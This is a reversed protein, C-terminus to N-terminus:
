PKEPAVSGSYVRDMRVGYEQMNDDWPIGLRQVQRRLRESPKLEAYNTGLDFLGVDPEGVTLSIARGEAQLRSSGDSEKSYSRYGLKECGLSPDRFDTNEYHAMPPWRVATTKEGLVTAYGVLTEGRFVCNKPPDVLRTKMEALQQSSPRPWTTKARISDSLTLITGDTLTIKRATEGMDLGVRGLATTVLVSAGDSRRAITSKSVLEGSPNDEFGYSEMELVFPAVAVQARAMRGIEINKSAYYCGVVLIGGLIWSLASSKRVVRPLNSRGLNGRM